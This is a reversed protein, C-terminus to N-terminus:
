AGRHGVPGAGIGGLVPVVRTLDKSQECCPGGRDCLGPPGPESTHEAAHASRRQRTIPGAYPFSAQEQRLATRRSRPFSSTLFFNRRLRLFGSLLPAHSTVNGSVAPSSQGLRPHVVTRLRALCTSVPGPAAHSLLM